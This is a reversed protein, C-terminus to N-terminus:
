SSSTQAVRGGLNHARATRSPFMHSSGAEAAAHNPIIIKYVISKARVNEFIMGYLFRHWEFSMRWILTQEKERRRM